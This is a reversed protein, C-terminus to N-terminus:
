NEVWAHYLRTWEELSLSGARRVPALGASDLLETVEAPSVALGHSLSNRLQKRPASFGARVLKFFELSEEASLIPSSLPDIRVVASKVKPPPHFANAPVSCVLHPESYFQVAISLLSMRGPAAVMTHAVEQQVMVVVLSPRPEEELLRRIIPNAAYYPLNAMVKWPAQKPLVQQFDYIRADAQVVTLNSPHGLRGPLSAALRHDLEVAIVRQVRNVLQGTLVGRGPGIEVVTDTACLDGASMISEVVSSDVLFHQGLAKSPFRVPRPSIEHRAATTTTQKM